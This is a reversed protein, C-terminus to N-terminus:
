TEPALKGKARTRPFCRGCLGATPGGLFHFQGASLLQKRRCSAKIRKTPVQSIVRIGCWWKRLVCAFLSNRRGESKRERWVAINFTDSLFLPRSHTLFSPPRTCSPPSLPDINYQSFPHLSGIHMAFLALQSETRTLLRQTARWVVKRWQSVWNLDCKQCCFHTLKSSCWCVLAKILLPFHPNWFNRQTKTCSPCFECKLKKEM